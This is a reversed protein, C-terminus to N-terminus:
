RLAGKIERSGGFNQVIHASWHLPSTPGVGVRTSHKEIRMRTVAM